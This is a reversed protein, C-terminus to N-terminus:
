RLRNRLCRDIPTTRLAFSMGNSPSVIPRVEVTWSPGGSVPPVPTIVIGTGPTGPRGSVGTRVENEVHSVEVEPNRKDIVWSLLAVYAAAAIFYGLVRM